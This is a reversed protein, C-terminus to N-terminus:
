NKESHESQSRFWRIGLTLLGIIVMTGLFDGLAMALSDRIFFQYHKQLYYSWTFQNVFAHTLNSIVSLIPLHWYRLNSLDLYINLQKMTLKVAILTAVSSSTAFLLWDNIHLEPLALMATIFLAICDGITGWVGFLMISILRSGAPLFVLYIWGDHLLFDPSQKTIEFTIFYIALSALVMFLRQIIPNKIIQFLM